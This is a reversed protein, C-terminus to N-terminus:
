DNVAAIATQIEAHGTFLMRVSDPTLARAKALFQVGSIGPMNMDSVVVAFPGHENVMTLGQDGGQAPIVEFDKGLQAQLLALITLEDDVCLIRPKMVRGGKGFFSCLPCM